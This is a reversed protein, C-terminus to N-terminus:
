LRMERVLLEPHSALPETAGTDVFGYREYLARAADNGDTVSLLIETAGRERAFAVVRELLAHGAGAGRYAPEVWMSFVVWDREERFTGALGVLRGGDAAVFLAQTEAEASGRAWDVWWDDPRAASAAYTGGFATPTDQLARLRLDRLARWEDPRVRRVEM